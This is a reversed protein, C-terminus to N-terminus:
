SPLSIKNPILSCQKSFLDNFLEGKKKFNNILCYEQFLTLTPIIPIKKNNLFIKLLSWYVKFNKHTNILKNVTNHFYKEAVEISPNLCDELYKLHCKLDINSKENYYNRFAANKRSNISENKASGHHTKTMVYYFSTRFSNLFM